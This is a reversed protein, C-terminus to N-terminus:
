PGEFQNAITLNGYDIRYTENITMNGGDQMPVTTKIELTTGDSAWSAQSTLESDMFGPNKNEKGDFTYTAKQTFEEGQFNSIRVSTLSNEKQTIIIQGPAM